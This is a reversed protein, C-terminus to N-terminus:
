GEYKVKFTVIFDKYKNNQSAPIINKGKQEYYKFVKSIRKLYTTSILADSDKSFSYGAVKGDKKVTFYLTLDHALKNEKYFDEGSDKTQDNLEYWLKESFCKSLEENTKYKNCGAFVPYKISEQAFSFTSLTILLFLNKM